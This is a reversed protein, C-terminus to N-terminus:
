VKLAWRNHVWVWQSPNYMIYESIKNNVYEIFKIKDSYFEDKIPIIVVEHTNNNLRYILAIVSPIKYKIVIEVFSIPTAAVKGLFKADVNKVNKINQDILVGIVYGSKLSLLLKKVSQEEKRGIVIEGVSSRFKEVLFNLQRIYVNRAIVALPFNKFALTAGLLEWNGFHASFIVVGKKQNSLNKLFEFDKESFKVIKNLFNKIRPFLFFEFLNKGLNSYCDKTINIIKKYNYEPFIFKLNKFALYKYKFDFYYFVRGLFWGFFINIKWPFLYFIKSLFVLFYFILLNRINKM